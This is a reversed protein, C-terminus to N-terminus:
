LWFYLLLRIFHLSSLHCATTFPIVRLLWTEHKAFQVTMKIKHGSTRFSITVQSSIGNPTDQLQLITRSINYEFSEQTHVINCYRSSLRLPTQRNNLKKKSVAM